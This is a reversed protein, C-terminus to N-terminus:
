LFKYSDTFDVLEPSLSLLITKFYKELTRYYDLYKHEALGNGEMKIPLLNPKASVWNQIDKHGYKKVYIERQYAKQYFPVFLAFTNRKRTLNIYGIAIRRFSRLYKFDEDSYLVRLILNLKKLKFPDLIPNIVIKKIDAPLALAYLSNLNDAVVLEIGKTQICQELESMIVRPSDDNSIEMEYVEGLKKEQLLPQIDQRIYDLLAQEEKQSAYIVLINM